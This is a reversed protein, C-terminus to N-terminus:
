GSRGAYWRGISRRRARRTAATESAIATGATALVNWADPRELVRRVRGPHRARAHLARRHDDDAPHERDPLAALDVEAAMVCRAVPRAVDREGRLVPVEGAAVGGHARVPRLDHHAVADLGRAAVTELLDCTRARKSTEQLM